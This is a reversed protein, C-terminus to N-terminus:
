VRSDSSRQLHKDLKMMMVTEMVKVMKIRLSEIEFKISRLRAMSMGM